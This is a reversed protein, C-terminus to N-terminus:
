GSGTTAALVTEDLLWSAPSYRQPRFPAPRAIWVVDDGFGVRVGVGYYAAETRVRALSRPMRPLAVTRQAYPAFRSARELARSWQSGEHMVARVRVAAVARRTFQEGVDVAGHPLRLLRTVTEQDLVSRPLPVDVPLEALATLGGYGLLPEM